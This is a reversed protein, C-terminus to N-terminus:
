IINKHKIFQCNQTEWHGNNFYQLTELLPKQSKTTTTLINEPFIEFNANM